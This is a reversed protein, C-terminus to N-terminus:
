DYIRFKLINKRLLYKIFNNFVKYLKDDYTKKINFIKNIKYFDIASLFKIVIYM